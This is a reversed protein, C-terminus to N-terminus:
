CIMVTNRCRNSRRLCPLHHHLSCQGSKGAIANFQFVHYDLTLTKGNHGNCILQQALERAFIRGQERFESRLQGQKLVIVGATTSDLAEAPSELQHAAPPVIQDHRTAARSELTTTM